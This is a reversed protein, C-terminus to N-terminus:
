ELRGWKMENGESDYKKRKAKVVDMTIRYVRTYNEGSNIAHQFYAMKDPTYKSCILELAHIKEDTDLVEQIKGDVIASEFETTFVSSILQVTKEENKTMEDLQSTTFLNPVHVEGVFVIKVQNNGSFLDVKTGERASHFYLFEDDRVISLPISYPTGSGTEIISLVGYRSRDIVQKAFETNMERDKRRMDFSWCKRWIRQIWSM